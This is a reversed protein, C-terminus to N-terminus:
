GPSAKGSDELRRQFTLPVVMVACESHRTIKETIRGFLATGFSHHGQRGIIILDISKERAYNIIERTVNGVRHEATFRQHEPVKSFYTHEMFDDIDKKAKRDIDDVEYMYSKWFQADSEPVIHLLHLESEPNRGATELAFYFAFNANESFDTCFLIRKFVGAANFNDKM